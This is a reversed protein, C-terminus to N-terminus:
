VRCSTYKYVTLRNAPMDRQAQKADRSLMKNLQRIVTKSGFDTCRNSHFTLWFTVTKGM